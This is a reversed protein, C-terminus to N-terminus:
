DSQGSGTVHKMPEWDGALWEYLVPARPNTDWEEPHAVFAFFVNGSCQRAIQACLTLLERAKTKRHAAVFLKNEASGIVLKSMDIVIERSDRRNFESEVQWHCQHVFELRNSRRQLSEESSVSCVVVDFLLENIRFQDRNATNGQWFVRHINMDYEDTFAKALESVWQRSREQNRVRHESGETRIDTARTWARNIVQSLNGRHVPM